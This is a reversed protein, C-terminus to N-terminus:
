GTPVGGGEGSRFAWISALVAAQDAAAFRPSAAATAAMYVSFALMSGGPMSMWCPRAAISCVTAENPLAPTRFKTSVATSTAGTPGSVARSIPRNVASTAAGCLFTTGSAPFYTTTHFCTPSLHSSSTSIQFEFLYAPTVLSSKRHHSEYQSHLIGVILQPPRCHGVFPLFEEIFYGAAPVQILVGRMALGGDRGDHVGFAVDNRQIGSLCRREFRGGFVIGDVLRVGLHLCENVPRAGPLAPRLRADVRNQRAGRGRAVRSQSQPRTPLPPDVRLLVVVDLKEASLARLISARRAAREHRIADGRGQGPLARPRKTPTRRAGAKSSM